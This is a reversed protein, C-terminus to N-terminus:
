TTERHAAQLPNEMHVNQLLASTKEIMSKRPFCEVMRDRAAAGAKVRSKPPLEALARWADALASPSAVPVVHGVDGVVRAADGVDTTVFPLATAMGEGVANPFGEGYASCLTAIDLANLVDSVDDRAGTWILRDALGQSDGLRRLEEAYDTPGGGICLFRAAPLAKALEAAAKLFTAHDKVPDLRAVLGIVIDSDAFGFAARWRKRSELNPHFRETDIGNAVVTMAKPRFHNTELHRRGAWSNCIILDASRSLLRELAFFMRWSLARDALKMDSTRIGWILRSRRLMPKILAAVANPFDLYSYVLDPRSDRVARILRLLFGFIDHRGRLGLTIVTIRAARLEALLAGDDHFSIVTPEFANRDLGRALVSLQVEAGGVEMSHVLFTIHIM